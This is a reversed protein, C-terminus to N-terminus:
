QCISLVGRHTTRNVSDHELFFFLKIEEHNQFRISCYNANRNAVSGFVLGKM